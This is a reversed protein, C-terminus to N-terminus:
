FLLYCGTYAIKLKGYNYDVGAIKCIDNVILGYSEIPAIVKDPMRCPADPYTCVKCLKCTDAGLALMNPFDAKLKNYFERFNDEHQKYTDNMTDADFPDEMEGITQVLLGTSFQQARRKLEDFPACAPPCQWNRNYFFCSDNCMERVEPMFKLNEVAFGGAKSFGFDIAAQVFANIDQNM